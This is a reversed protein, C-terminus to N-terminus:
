GFMVEWLEAAGRLLFFFLLLAVLVYGPLIPWAAIYVFALYSFAAAKLVPTILRGVKSSYVTSAFSTKMKSSTGKSGLLSDVLCNRIFVVFLIWLPLVRLYTFIIWFAYEMIRDGAIDIRAGYKSAKKLAGRYSKVKAAAKDNGIAYGLYDVFSIKGNSVERVAFYGDIADLLMAVIIMAAILWPNIKLLIFWAAAIAIIVRILTTMDASRM